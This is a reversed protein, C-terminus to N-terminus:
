SYLAHLGSTRYFTCCKFKASTPSQTVSSVTVVTGQVRFVAIQQATAGGSKFVWNDTTNPVTVYFAKASGCQMNTSTYTQSPTLQLDAGGNNPQYEGCPTGTGYFRFYRAVNGGSTNTTTYILSSGASASMSVGTGWGTGWGDGSQFSNQAWAGVSSLALCTFLFFKKFSYFKKMTYKNLKKCNTLQVSLHL